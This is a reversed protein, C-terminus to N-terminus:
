YSGVSFNIALKSLPLPLLLLSDKFTIKNQYDKTWIDISIIRGNHVKPTIEEVNKSKMATFYQLIFVGDFRSLNHAYIVQLTTKKLLFNFYAKFLKNPKDEFFSTHEEGDYHNILYPFFTNHKNLLCEIQLAKGLESLRSRFSQINLIM